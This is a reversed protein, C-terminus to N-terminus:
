TLTILGQQVFNQAQQCVESVDCYNCRVVKGPFHKVLGVGGNADLVAQAEAASTINAKTARKADPKKYYKWEDDSQWLEERTCQPLNEQPANEYFRIQSLIGSVFSETEVLSLLKVEKTVLQTQPYPNRGPKPKYNTRADSKSWDRYIYQILALDDTIIEPNLWHYVSVQQTHEKTKSGYVESWASTSKYDELKGNAIIDPKGTVTFGNIVKSYRQELYVPIMEPFATDKTPNIVIRDAIHKPYGLKELTATLDESRWAKEISDHIATGMSSAILSVIDGKKELQKNQRALVIARIPQLLTTTSITDPDDNYDYEDTALWVALSLSVNTNNTLQM